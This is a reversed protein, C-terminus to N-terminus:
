PKPNLTLVAGAKDEATLDFSTLAGRWTSSPPKQFDGKEPPSVVRLVSDDKGLISCKFHMTCAPPGEELTFTMFPRAIGRNRSNGSWGHGCVEDTFTFSHSETVSWASDTSWTFVHTLAETSKQLGAIQGKQEAVKEEM